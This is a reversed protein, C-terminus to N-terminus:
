FVLTSNLDQASKAGVHEVRRQWNAGLYYYRLSDHQMNVIKELRNKLETWQAPDVEIEFVSNQVRQGYDLCARAVRRLRKKGNEEVTSVDYTVLVMM